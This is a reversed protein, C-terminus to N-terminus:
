DSSEMSLEKVHRWVQYNTSWVTESLEKMLKSAADESKMVRALFRFFSEEDREMSAWNKHPIVISEQPKGGIRSSWIWTHEDSAWGQNLAIQSMKDRARDFEAAMGSKLNFETVAFLEYPGNAESWHSNEWSSSEFYHASRDIYPAVHKQFHEGIKENAQSWERYADVDSWNLCCYRIAVRSLDDGLTPAYTEWSRPDGHEQRFAMHAKIGKKFDASHGAKPALIWMESLPPVPDAAVATVPLAFILIALAAILFKMPKTM